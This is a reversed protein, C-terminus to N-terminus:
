IYITTPLSVRSNITTQAKADWVKKERQCSFLRALLSVCPHCQSPHCRSPHCWRPESTTPLSVLSNITTQAKADRVRKKDKVNFFGLLCPSLSPMLSAWEVRIAYVIARKVRITDVVASKAQIADFLSVQHNPHFWSRSRRRLHCQSRSLHCWLPQSSLESPM